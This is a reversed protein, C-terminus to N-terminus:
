AEYCATLRMQNGGSFIMGGASTSELASVQNLGLSPAANFQASVSAGAGSVTATDYLLGIRGSPSSTSNIGIGLVGTSNGSGNYIMQVFELALFEEPLGTFTLLSNASNNNSPRFGGNYPWSVTSDQVQLGIGKRNYANWVGWKRSQGASLHCSTQGATADVAVSGLYTAQGIPVNAYASGGNTLTIVNSNVWIGNNVRSIQTTGAGVGRACAGASPRQRKPPGGRSARPPWPRM